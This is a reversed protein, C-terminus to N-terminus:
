EGKVIEKILEALSLCGIQYNRNLKKNIKEAIKIYTPKKLNLEELLKQDLFLDRALGDFKKEAEKMVIVRTSYESVVDMDHTVVIITKKTTQHIKKFLEMMERQGKPDLGVTPEDLILIDPEMALVGAIAVRRMEGGSLNFPSKELITQELGVLKAVEKAKLIAEKKSVGFNTPGFIIDKEVTEEFLQYEPFQFVMGVKRRVSNINRTKKVDSGSVKVIGSNALILGNMHQILTSKGSGTHGVLCIFENLSDIKLDINKIAYKANRKDYKYNVNEFEIGM